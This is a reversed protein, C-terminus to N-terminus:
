CASRCSGLREDRVGDDAHRQWAIWALTQVTKGLGMDDALCGNWQHAELTRLWGLGEQQYDRLKGLFGAPEPSRVRGSRELSKRIRDFKVDASAEKVPVAPTNPDESLQGTLLADLIGAQSPMFRLRGGVETRGTQALQAYRTLWDPVLGRSGDKLEVFRAGQAVSELLEPLSAEIGDFELEAELDFWDIGSSIKTRLAGPARVPQGESEIHWGEESLSRIVGLLAKAPVKVEGRPAEQTSAAELGLARLRDLYEREVKADRRFLKRGGEDVVARRRESAQVLQGGYDFAVRGLVTREGEGEAAAFAVRPRPRIMVQSWHLEPPLSVEPLNAMTALHVLFEDKAEEPVVIAGHRRLRWLLEQSEGADAIAVQQGVVFLGSSLFLLPAELDVSEEGRRLAGWLRYGDGDPDRRVALEFGYPGGEDFHLPGTVEIEALGGELEFRGTAALRALILEYMGPRVVSRSYRVRQELRARTRDEAATGVLLQLIARDDAEPMKRLSQDDVELPKWPGEGEREFFDIVLQDRLRTERVNLQYRIQRIRPGIMVTKVPDEPDVSRGQIRDLASKWRPLPSGGSESDTV